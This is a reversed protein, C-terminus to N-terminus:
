YSTLQPDFLSRVAGDPELGSKELFRVHRCAGRIDAVPWFAVEIPALSRRLLQERRPQPSGGIRSVSFPQQTSAPGIRRRRRGPHLTRGRGYNCVDVEPSSGDPRRGTCPCSSSFRQEPARMAQHPCGDATRKWSRVASRCFDVRNPPSSPMSCVTPAKPPFALEATPSM